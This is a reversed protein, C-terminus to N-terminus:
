AGAEGMPLWLCAGARYPGADGVTRGLWPVFPDDLRRDRCTQLFDACVLGESAQSVGRCIPLLPTCRLAPAQERRTWAKGARNVFDTTSKIFFTCKDARRPPRHLFLRSTQYTIVSAHGWDSKYYKQVFIIRIQQQIHGNRLAKAYSFYLDRIFFTQHKQDKAHQFGQLVLNIKRFFCPRFKPKTCIQASAYLFIVCFGSHTSM